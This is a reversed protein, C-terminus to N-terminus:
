LLQSQVLIQACSILKRIWGWFIKDLFKGFSKRPLISQHPLFEFGTRTGTLGPGEKSSLRDSYESSFNSNGTRANHQTKKLLLYITM